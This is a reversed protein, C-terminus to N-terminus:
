SQALCTNGMKLRAHPRSKLSSNFNPQFPLYCLRLFFKLAPDLQPLMHVSGAKKSGCFIECGLFETKSNKYKEGCTPLSIVNGLGQWQLM